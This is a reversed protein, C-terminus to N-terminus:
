DEEVTSENVSANIGVLTGELKLQLWSGGVLDLGYKLNGDIGADAPPPPYVYIAVLAAIVLLILAIVRIDGLLGREEM